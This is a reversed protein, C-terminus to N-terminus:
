ARESQRNLASRRLAISAVQLGYLLTAARKPEINDAALQRCINTVAMQIALDDELVPLELGAHRKEGRKATAERQETSKRSKRKRPEATKSHFHCLRKRKLAPSGCQEGDAKIFQCRPSDAAVPRADEDSGDPLPVPMECDNKEMYEQYKKPDLAAAYLEPNVAKTYEGWWVARMSAFPEKTALDDDDGWLWPHLREFAFGMLTADRKEGANV